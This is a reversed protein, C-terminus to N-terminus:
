KGSSGLGRMGRESDSLEDVEKFTLPITIGIKMQAIRDGVKYPIKTKDFHYFVLSIENRYGEDITPESNSLIMGFKYISSRPRFDVSLLLESNNLDIITNEDLKVKDRNIETAWGIGYKWVGPSIEEASTAYVDNGFDGDYAKFPMQALENFRKLSIEM